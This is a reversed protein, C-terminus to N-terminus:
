PIHKWTVRKIVNCIAEPTMSFKEACCAYFERRLEETSMDSNVYEKRLAIVDQETLKAHGNGEGKRVKCMKQKYAENQWLKKGAESILKKTDESQRKNKLSILRKKRCEENSLGRSIASCHTQNLKRGKLALSIKERVSQPIKKGRRANAINICTLADLKCCGNGGPTQNYLHIGLKKHEAISDIESQFMQEDDVERANFSFNELGHKRISAYLHGQCGRNAARIHQKFRILPDHLTTVGIYM